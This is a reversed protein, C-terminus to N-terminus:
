DLRSGRLQIRETASAGDQIANWLYRSVASSMQLALVLRTHADADDLRVARMQGLLDAELASVAEQLLPNELLRQAEQARKIQEDPLM